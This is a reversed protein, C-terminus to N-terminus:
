ESASDPMTINAKLNICSEKQREMAEAAESTDQNGTNKWFDNYYAEAAALWSATEEETQTSDAMFIYKTESRFFAGKEPEERIKYYAACSMLQKAMELVDYRVASENQRQSSAQADGEQARPLAPFLLVGALVIMIFFRNTM